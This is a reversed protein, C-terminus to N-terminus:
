DNNAAKLGALCVNSFAKAFVVFDQQSTVRDKVLYANLSNDYAILMAKLTAAFPSQESYDITASAIEHMETNNLYESFQEDEDERYVSVDFKMRDILDEKYTQLM